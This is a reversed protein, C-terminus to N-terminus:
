INSSLDEFTKKDPNQNSYVESDQVDPIKLAIGLFGRMPNSGNIRFRSSEVESISNIKQSFMAQSIPQIANESCFEKYADYLVKSHVRNDEKLECWENVFVDINTQQFAYDNLVMTSDELVEFNYNNDVLSQLTDIALSFIIDAEKKLNDFFDNERSEKAISHPFTLLVLRDIFATTVDENKIPPLINGSFLLKCHNEFDFVDKNKFEGSLTDGGVIMKFTDIDKLPRSSLEGCVNIRKNSLVATCFRDGLKELMINSVNEKGFIYEVLHLFMSKGSNPAGLLIFAKKANILPSCLYALFQLLLKIKSEDGDLSTQCFKYFYPADSIDAYKIYSVNLQYNFYYEQKKELLQKTKWNLVGNRVNILNSDFNFIDISLQIDMTYRLRDMLERIYKPRISRRIKESFFCSVVHWENDIDILIFRGEPHFYMYLRGVCYFFVHLNLIHIFMADVDIKGCYKQEQKIKKCFDLNM